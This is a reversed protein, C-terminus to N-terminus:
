EVVEAEKVVEGQKVETAMVFLPLMAAEDLAIRKAGVADYLARAMGSHATFSVIAADTGSFVDDLLKKARKTMAEKTERPEDKKWLEDEDTFGEEIEYTPYHKKIDAGTLSRKDCYHRNLTERLFEKVIPKFPRDAPVKLGSYALETTDLCRKLPSTFYAQPTPMKLDEIWGSYSTNLERAQSQGKLTLDADKWRPNFAEEDNWTTSGAYTVKEAFNHAAEGHRILIILKYIAKGKGEENLKELHDAFSQWSAVKGGEGDDVMAGEVHRFFDNPEKAKGLDLGKRTKARWKKTIAPTTGTAPWESWAEPDDEHGFFGKMPKYEFTRSASSM